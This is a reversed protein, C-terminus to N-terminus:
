NWGYAVSRALMYGSVSGALVAILVGVVAIAAFLFGFSLSFALFLVFSSIGSLLGSAGVAFAAALIISSFIYGGVATVIPLGVNLALLKVESWKSTQGVKRVLLTGLFMAIFSPVVLVVAHYSYSSSTFTQYAEWGMEYWHRDGSLVPFVFYGLLGATSTLSGGLVGLFETRDM